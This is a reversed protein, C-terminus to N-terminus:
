NTGCPAAEPEVAGLRQEEMSLVEKLATLAVELQQADPERTTMGQLALGPKFLWRVWTWKQYRASFRQLEYTVGAIPLILMLEGGLRAWLKLQRPLLIAFTIISVVMVMLLFATSCRPHFRSKDQASAVDLGQGAEWAFISKHEAGHYMFVRRLDPIWSMMWLYLLFITVKYFGNLANFTWRSEGAPFYKATLQAGYYPVVVFLLVGLGMGIILTIALALRDGKSAVPKKDEAGAKPEEALAQQGSWELAKLGLIMSEFLVLTGRLWPWKLPPFRESWAHVTQKEVVIKGDPRRVAMAMSKGARMMVGEIIAQGGVTVKSM